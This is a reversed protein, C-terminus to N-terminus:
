AIPGAGGGHILGALLAASALGCLLGLLAIALRDRAMSM